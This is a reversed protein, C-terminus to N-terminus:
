EFYNPDIMSLLNVRQSTTKPAFPNSSQTRTPQRVSVCFM